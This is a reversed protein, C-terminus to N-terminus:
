ILFSQILVTIDPTAVPPKYFLFANSKLEYARPTLVWVFAVVLMSLKPSIEIASATSYDVDLQYVLEVDECCGSEDEWDGCCKSEDANVFLNVEKLNGGCFHQHVCIGFTASLFAVLLM